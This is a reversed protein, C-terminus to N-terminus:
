FVCFERAKPPAPQLLQPALRSTLGDSFMSPCATFAVRPRMAVSLHSAPFHFTRRRAGAGDCRGHDERQRGGEHHEVEATTFLFEILLDRPVVGHLISLVLPREAHQKTRRDQLAVAQQDRGRGPGDIQRTSVEHGIFKSHASQHGSQHGRHIAPGKSSAPASILSYWGVMNWTLTNVTSPKSDDCNDAVVIQQM